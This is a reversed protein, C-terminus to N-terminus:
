SRLPLIYFKLQNKYQIHASKAELETNKKKFSNESNYNQKSNESLQNEIKKELKAHIM